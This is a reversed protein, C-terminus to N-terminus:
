RTWHSKIQWHCFLDSLNFCGNSIVPCTLTLIYSRTGQKKRKLNGIQFCTLRKILPLSMCLRHEELSTQTLKYFLRNKMM